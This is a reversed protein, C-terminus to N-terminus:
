KLRKVFENIDVDLLRCINLALTFYIERDGNEIMAYYSRSVGLEEAAYAQTIGKLERASRMARAFEILVKEKEINKM